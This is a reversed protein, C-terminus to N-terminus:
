HLNEKLAHALIGTFSLDELQLAPPCKSSLAHSVYNVIDNSNVEKMDIVPLNFKDSLAKVKGKGLTYDIAVSNLGYACGFVLSHFRMGLLAHSQQFLKCYEDPAFERGLFSYDLNNCIHDNLRFLKRYFWRDDSGFHNTCMPVPIIKLDHFNTVLMSLADNIATEYNEKVQLALDESLHTAYDQYPFDRLGLLLTKGKSFDSDKPDNETSCLWTFAPDEAVFSNQSTVGLKAANHESKTDRYIKIQCLNLLNRISDNLWGKGLPGVGVGCAITLAGSAKAREFLVQMEGIEPIAMLPGGGFLLIDVNGAKSLATQVDIIEVGDFEKMQSSTIKTVYPNLSVVQIQAPKNLTSTLATLIGGIIAKDGLTETGYWGCIMIRITDASSSTNSAVRIQSPSKRYNAIKSQFKRKQRVKNANLFGPTSKIRERLSFRSDLKNFFLKRYHAKDPIGVYDHHCNKCENRVIEQLHNENKFFVEELNGTSVDNTLAKSKVACYALEGKSTITAGQYQWACGAKRPANFVLQDILSRYFFNQSPDTEYYKIMGELFEALEYKENDTLAYPDLLNETYLRQHPIGLRFKIYLNNRICFDLLDHLHYVNEKIVTCGIRVKNAVENTQLFSIVKLANKFNGERGRVRDHVENFGDLSVMIDFKIDTGALLASIGEIREIVQKYKFSNTILSVVKLKPLHNVAAAVLDVLDDRLTPEGGNFGVAEVESFLDSQFAAKLQEVSIDVSKKNEWIRCMQCRSNCIDIVPFQIVVPKRLKLPRDSILYEFQNALKRFKM